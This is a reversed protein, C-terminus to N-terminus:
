QWGLETYVPSLVRQWTAQQEQKEGPLLAACEGLLTARADEELAQWALTKERLYGAEHRFIAALEAAIKRRDHVEEAFCRVRATTHLDRRSLLLALTEEIERAETEGPQIKYVVDDPIHEMAGFNSVMCPLGASLSLPLYPGSQGFASFLTHVAIGGASILTKWAEPSRGIVIEADVLSFEKLMERAQTEEEQAVLWRLKCHIKMNALALLVKHVRQEIRPAGCYYVENPTQSAVASVGCEVPLPLYYSRLNGEATNQLARKTHRRFEDHDRISSFLSVLALGGERLGYPGRRVYENARDPWRRGAAHFKQVTEEWASNLIPEPGDTSFLYDHFLVVGPMLGLHIRLFNCIKLDELQYFCVDFPREAHREFAKLYHFTPYSQYAGFGDHFLEIEFDEALLPLLQESVYASISPAAAPGVNLPSFWAIRTKKNM